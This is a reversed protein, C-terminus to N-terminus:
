LKELHLEPSKTLDFEHIKILAGVQLQHEGSGKDYLIKHREDGIEGNNRLWTVTPTPNGVVVARFVVLKGTSIVVFYKYKITYLNYLLVHRHSLKPM